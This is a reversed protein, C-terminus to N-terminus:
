LLGKSHLFVQIATFVTASSTNALLEKWNFKGNENISMDIQVAIATAQRLLEIQEESNEKEMAFLNNILELYDKLRQNESKLLENNERLLENTEKLSNVTDESNDAIRKLADRKEKENQEREERAADIAALTEEQTKKMHQNVLNYDFLSKPILEDVTVPRLNKIDDIM